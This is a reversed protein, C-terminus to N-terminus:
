ISMRDHCPTIWCLAVSFFIVNIINKQTIKKIIFYGTEIM